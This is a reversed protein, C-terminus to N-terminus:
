LAKLESLTIQTEDTDPPELHGHIVYDGIYTAIFTPSSIDVGSKVYGLRELEKCVEGVQEETLERCDIYYSKM